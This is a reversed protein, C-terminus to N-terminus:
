TTEDYAETVQDGAEDLNEQIREGTTPENNFTQDAKQEIAEGTEKAADGMSDMADSMSEQASEMKDEPEDQCAALLGLSAVLAATICLKKM